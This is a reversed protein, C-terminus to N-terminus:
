VSTCVFAIRFAPANASDCTSCSDDTPHFILAGTSERRSLSAESATFLNIRQEQRNM